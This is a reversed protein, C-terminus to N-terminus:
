PKMGRGAIGALERVQRALKPSRLIAEVPDAKMLRSLNVPFGTKVLHLPTTATRFEENLQLGIKVLSRPASVGALSSIRAYQKASLSEFLYNSYLFSGILTLATAEAGLKALAGQLIGVEKENARFHCNADLFYGGIEGEAFVSALAEVSNAFAEGLFIKLLTDGSKPLRRLSKKGFFLDHAICHAAEHFLYNFKLESRKLETLTFAGPASKELKELWPFNKRYPVRRSDIAEDLSMLPFAFYGNLNEETFSFGRKLFDERIGRFVPNTACLFGDGVNDPLRSYARFQRHVAIVEALPIGHRDFKEFSLKKAV